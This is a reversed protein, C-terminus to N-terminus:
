GIANVFIVTLAAYALAALLVLSLVAVVAVKKPRTLKSRVALVVAVGAAIVAAASVWLMM